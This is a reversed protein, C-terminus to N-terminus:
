RFSDPVSECGIGDQDPDLWPGYYESTYPIDSAGHHRAQVCDKYPVAAAIAPTALIGFGLVLGAALSARVM